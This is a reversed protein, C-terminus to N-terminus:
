PQGAVEKRIARCVDVEAEEDVSQPAVHLSSKRCWCGIVGGCLYVYRSLNQGATVDKDSDVFDPMRQLIRIVSWIQDQLPIAIEEGDTDLCEASKFVLDYVDGAELGGKQIRSPGAFITVNKLGVFGAAVFGFAANRAAVFVPGAFNRRTRM